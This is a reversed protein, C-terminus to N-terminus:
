RKTSDKMRTTDGGRATDTAMGSGANGGATDAMGGASDAAGGGVSSTSDTGNTSSTKSHCATLGISLLAALILVHPLNKM